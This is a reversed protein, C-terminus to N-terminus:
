AIQENSSTQCLASQTSFLSLWFKPAPSVIFACYYTQRVAPIKKKERQVLILALLYSKHKNITVWTFSGGGGAGYEGRYLCFKRSHWIMILSNWWRILNFGTESLLPMGMFHILLLQRFVVVTSTTTAIRTVETLFFFITFVNQQPPPPLFM